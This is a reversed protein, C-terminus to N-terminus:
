TKAPVWATALIQQAPVTEDHQLMIDKSNIKKGAMSSFDEPGQLSVEGIGSFDEQGQLSVKNSGGHQFLRTGSAFGPRTGPALSKQCPPIYLTENWLSESKEPWAFTFPRSGHVLLSKRCSLIYFFETTPPLFTVSKVGLKEIRPLANKEM